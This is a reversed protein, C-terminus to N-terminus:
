EDPQTEAPWEACPESEIVTQCWACEWVGDILVPHHMARMQLVSLAEVAREEARNGIERNLDARAEAAADM